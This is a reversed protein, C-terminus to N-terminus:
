LIEFVVDKQFTSRASELPHFRWRALNERAARDLERHGSSRMVWTRSASGDVAIEIGITVQGELGRRLARAPYRLEPSFEVFEVSEVLSPLSDPADGAASAAPQEPTDAVHVQPTRSAVSGDPLEVHRKTADSAALANRSQITASSLVAAHLPQPGSSVRNPQDLKQRPLSLSLAPPASAARSQAGGTTQPLQEPTLVTLELPASRPVEPRGGVQAQVARQRGVSHLVMGHAAISLLLAILLDHHANM